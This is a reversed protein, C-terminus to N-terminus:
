QSKLGYLTTYVCNFIKNKLQPSFMNYRPHLQFIPEIDRYHNFGNNYLQAETFSQAATSIGYSTLLMAASVGLAKAAEWLLPALWFPAAGAKRLGKHGYLYDFYSLGQLHNPDKVIHMISGQKVPTEPVHSEICDHLAVALALRSYGRYKHLGGARYIRISYIEQESESAVELNVPFFGRFSGGFRKFFEHRHVSLHNDTQTFYQYILDENLRLIDKIIEERPRNPSLFEPDTEIRKGIEYYLSRYHFYLIRELLSWGSADKSSLIDGVSDLIFSLYEPNRLALKRYKSLMNSIRNADKLNFGYRLLKDEDAFLLDATILQIYRQSLAYPNISFLLPDDQLNEIPQGRGLIENIRTIINQTDRFMQSNLLEREMYKFAIDMINKGSNYSKTDFLDNSSVAKSYVARRLVHTSITMMLPTTMSPNIIDSVMAALSAKELLEIEKLSLVQNNEVRSLVNGVTIGQSGAGPLLSIGTERGFIESVIVKARAVSKDRGSFYGPAYSVISQFYHYGFNKVFAKSFEHDPVGSQLSTHYYGLLDPVISMDVNIGHRWMSRALALHAVGVPLSIGTSTLMEATMKQLSFLRSVHHTLIREYYSQTVPNRNGFFLEGLNSTYNVVSVLTLDSATANLHDSVRQWYKEIAQPTFNSPYFEGKFSILDKAAENNLGLRWALEGSLLSNLQAAAIVAFEQYKQPASSFDLSIRHFGYIKDLIKALQESHYHLRGLDDIGIRDGIVLKGFIFSGARVNDWDLLYPLVSYPLLNQSDFKLVKLPSNFKAMERVLGRTAVPTHIFLDYGLLLPTALGGLGRYFYYVGSISSKLFVRDLFNWSYHTLVMTSALSATDAAFRALHSGEIKDSLGLAEEGAQIASHIGMFAPDFIWWLYHTVPTRGLQIRPIKTTHRDTTVSQEKLSPSRLIELPFDHYYQRFLAYWSEMDHSSRTRSLMWFLPDALFPRSTRSYIDFVPNPGNSMFRVRHSFAPIDFLPLEQQNTIPNGQAIKTLSDKALLKYAKLM